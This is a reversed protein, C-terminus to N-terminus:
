LIEHAVLFRRVLAWPRPCDNHGCPLLHLESRAAAAHLRRGHEPAILDDGEGHLVLTPGPFRRLFALNDFPDRVLLGPLGFRRALSKVSTFTSELVLAALARERALACVAGGGLSRGWAVVRGPDVGAQAGAWDYAAVMAETISAQSPRGPSRGYGPFEVLLVSAGWQRPTEFAGAWFDILEGNGHAFILLPGPAAPAPSPPLLWAESRGAAHELWVSRGGVSPLDGAGSAALPAPYLVSRQLLFLLAWWAAVAAVALSAIALLGSRM